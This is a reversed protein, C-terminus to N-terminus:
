DPKLIQSFLQFFGNNFFKRSKNIQANSSSFFSFMTGFFFPGKSGNMPLDTLFTSFGCKRVELLFDILLHFTLKLRSERKNMQRTLTCYFLSSHDIEFFMSM